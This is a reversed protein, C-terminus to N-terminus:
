VNIIVFYGNKTVFFINKGDVIPAAVSSVDKNAFFKHLYPCKEGTSPVTEESVAAYYELGLLNVYFDATEKADKCRYAVHLLQQVAM